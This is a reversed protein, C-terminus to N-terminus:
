IRRESAWRTAEKREKARKSQYRPNYLGFIGRRLISERKPLSKYDLIQMLLPLLSFAGALWIVLHFITGKGGLDKYVLGFYFFVPPILFLCIAYFWGASKRTLSIEHQTAHWVRYSAFAISAAGAGLLLYGSQDGIDALVGLGFLCLLLGAEAFVLTLGFYIFLAFHM